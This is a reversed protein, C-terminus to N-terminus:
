LTGRMWVWALSAFGAANLALGLLQFERRTYPRDRYLVTADLLLWLAGALLFGGLVPERFAVILLAAEIVVLAVVVLKTARAGLITATTRRGSQRDPEIDM